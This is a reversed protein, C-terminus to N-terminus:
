RDFGPPVPSGDWGYGCKPCVFEAGRPPKPLAKPGKGTAERALGIQRRLETSGWGFTWARGLWLRQEAADLGMVARHCNHSLGAIRDAPAVRRSVSALNRLTGVALGTAEAAETYTKGSRREGYALADGLWWQAGARARALVGLVNLWESRTPEALFELSTERPWVLSALQVDNTFSLEV